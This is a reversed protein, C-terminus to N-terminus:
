EESTVRVIKRTRELLAPSVQYMQGILKQAEEGYTPQIHLKQAAAEARLDPDDM